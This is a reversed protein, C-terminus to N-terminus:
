QDTSEPGDGMTDYLKGLSDENTIENVRSEPAREEVPEVFSSFRGDLHRKYASDSPSEAEETPTERKITDLQKNETVKKEVTLAVALGQPKGELAGLPKSMATDAYDVSEQKLSLEDVFASDTGILGRRSNGQLAFHSDARSNLESPQQRRSEGEGPTSSSSAESPPRSPRAEAEAEAAASSFMLASPSSLSKNKLVLRAEKILEVDNKCESMKSELSDLKSELIRLVLDMANVAGGKGAKNTQKPPVYNAAPHMDTLANVDVIMLPSGDPATDCKLPSSDVSEGTTDTAGTKEATGPLELEPVVEGETNLHQMLMSQELLFADDMEEDESEGDDCDVMKDLLVAIVVNVLMINVILIYSVFFIAAHPYVNIVPRAIATAWSDGTMVQFMTLMAKAFTGFLDPQLDRFFSVGLISYIANVLIVISFANACGPIANELARIIKRLSELRKFLRFVRFARMLRLTSIGPLGTLVLSVLSIMVVIFDFVNWGSYWFDRWWHAHMNIVLEVTFISTFLLEFGKFIKFQLSNSDEAQVQAEAANVIFNVLILVAVLIQANPSNYASRIVRRNLLHQLYAVRTQPVRLFMQSQRFHTARAKMDRLSSFSRALGAQVMHEAYPLARGRPTNEGSISEQDFSRRSNGSKKSDKKKDPSIDKKSSTRPSPTLDSSSPSGKAGASASAPREGGKNKNRSGSRPRKESNATASSSRRLEPEEATGASASGAAM